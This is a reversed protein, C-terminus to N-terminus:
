STVSPTVEDTLTVHGSEIRSFDLIDGVLAHLNDSAYQIRMALQQKVSEDTTKRMLGTFGVIANLPTRLEHSINALFRSKEYNASEAKIKEVELRRHLVAFYIPILVLILLGMWILTPMRMWFPSARSVIMFGTISLFACFALYKNGFRFGNGVTVWLYAVFLPAGYDSLCSMDITTMTIDLVMGSIQRVSAYGIDSSSMFFLLFALFLYAFTGVIILQITVEPLVGYYELSLLYVLLFCLITIRILSQETEARNIM